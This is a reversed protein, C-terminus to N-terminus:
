DTNKSEPQTNELSSEQCKNEGQELQNIKEFMKIITTSQLDNVSQLAKVTKKLKLTNMMSLYKNLDVDTYYLVCKRVLKYAAVRENGM